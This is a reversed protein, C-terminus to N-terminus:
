CSSLPAGAPCTSSTLPSPLCKDTKYGTHGPRRDPVLTYASAMYAQRSTESLFSSSSPASFEVRSQTSRAWYGKVSHSM